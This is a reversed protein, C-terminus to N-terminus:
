LMVGAAVNSLTGQLALGIALGAAGLVAVLSTTEVGFKNLVALVTVAVVLYKVMTSLFGALMEDAKGSKLLGSLVKRRAIGAFWFGVILIVIAAVVQLGYVTVIDVVMQTTEEITTTMDEM